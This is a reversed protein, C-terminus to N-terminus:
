RQALPLRLTFRSEAEEETAGVFASAMDTGAAGPEPVETVELLADGDSVICRVAVAGTEATRVAADLVRDLTRRLENKDVRVWVPEPAYAFAIDVPKDYVAERAQAVAEAVIEIADIRPIFPTAEEDQPADEPEVMAIITAPSGAEGEIIGATVHTRLLSGDACVYGLDLRTVGAGRRLLAGLREVCDPTDVLDLISRGIVEVPTRGTMRCFAANVGLIRGERNLEQIGMPIWDFAGRRIASGTTAPRTSRGALEVDGPEISALDQVAGKATPKGEM